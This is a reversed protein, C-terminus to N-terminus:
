MHIYVCVCAHIYLGICVHVQIHICEYTTDFMHASSMNPNEFTNYLKANLAARMDDVRTHMFCTIDCIRQGRQQAIFCVVVCLVSCCVYGAQGARMGDVREHMLLGDGQEYVHICIYIYIYIHIYIYIWTFTYTYMHICMYIYTYINIHVYWIYLYICIYTYIHLCIYIYAHSYLYAYMCM